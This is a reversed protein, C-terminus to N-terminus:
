VLGDVRDLEALIISAPVATLTRYWNSDFFKRISKKVGERKNIRDKYKKEIEEVASHPMSLDIKPPSIPKAASRYDDVAKVVIANALKTWELYGDHRAEEGYGEYDLNRYRGM